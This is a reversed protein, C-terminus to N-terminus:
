CGFNYGIVISSIRLKVSFTKKVLDNQKLGYEPYKGYKMNM